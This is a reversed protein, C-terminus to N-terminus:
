NEWPVAKAHTELGRVIEQDRGKSWLTLHGKSELIQIYIKSVHTTHSITLTPGWSSTITERRNQLGHM